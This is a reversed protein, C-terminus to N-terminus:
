YTLSTPLNRPTAMIIDQCRFFIRIWIDYSNCFIKDMSLYQIMSFM